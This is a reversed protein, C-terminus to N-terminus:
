SQKTAWETPTIRKDKVYKEKHLTEKSLYIIVTTLIYNDNVSLIRNQASLALIPPKTLFLVMLDGSVSPMRM